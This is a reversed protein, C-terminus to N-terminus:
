YAIVTIATALLLFSIANLFASNIQMVFQLFYLLFYQQSGFSLNPMAVGAPSLYFSLTHRTSGHLNSSVLNINYPRSKMCY